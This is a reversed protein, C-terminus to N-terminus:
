DLWLLNCLFAFHLLYSPINLTFLRPFIPAYSLELFPRFSTNRLTLMGRKRAVSTAFACHFDSTTHYLDIETDFDHFQRVTQDIPFSSFSFQDLTLIDNSMRLLTVENSLLIKTDVMFSRSKFRNSNHVPLDVSGRFNLNLLICTAWIIKSTRTTYSSFMLSTRTLSISGLYRISYSIRKMHICGTPTSTASQVTSRSIRARNGAYGWRMQARQHCSSLLRRRIHDFNTNHRILPPHWEKM